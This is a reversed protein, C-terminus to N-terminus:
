LRTVSGILWWQEGGILWWQEGWHAVVAGRKEKKVNAAVAAVM